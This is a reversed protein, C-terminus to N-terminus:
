TALADLAEVPDITDIAEIRDGTAPQAAQPHPAVVGRRDIRGRRRLAAGSPRGCRHVVRAHRAPVRRGVVSIGRPPTFGVGSTHLQGIAHTKLGAPLPSTSVRDVASRITQTTLLSGIIAIGLAAGIQRVTTNAGSAAGAHDNPIDSLVVNTLQSSAFGLGIGFLALGPLLM